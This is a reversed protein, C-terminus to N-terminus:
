RAFYQGYIKIMQPTNRSASIRIQAATDFGRGARPMDPPSHTSTNKRQRNPAVRWVTRPNEVQHGRLPMVIPPRSM